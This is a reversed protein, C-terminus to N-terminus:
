KLFNKHEPHSDSGYGKRSEIKLRVRIGIGGGSCFKNSAHAPIAGAYLLKASEQRVVQSGPRIKEKVTRKTTGDQLIEGIENSSSSHSLKKSRAFGM